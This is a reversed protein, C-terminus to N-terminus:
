GEGYVVIYNCSYVPGWMLWPKGCFFDRFRHVSESLMCVRNEHSPIGPELFVRLVAYVMVLCQWLIKPHCSKYGVFAYVFEQLHNYLIINVCM